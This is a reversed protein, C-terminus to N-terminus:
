IESRCMIKVPLKEVEQIIKGCVVVADYDWSEASELSHRQIIKIVSSLKVYKDDNM